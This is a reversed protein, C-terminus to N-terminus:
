PGLSNYLCKKKRVVFLLSVKEYILWTTSGNVGMSGTVAWSSGQGKNWWRPKFQAPPFSRELSEWILTILEISGSIHVSIPTFFEFCIKRGSCM